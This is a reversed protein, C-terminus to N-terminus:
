YDAGITKLINQKLDTVELKLNNEFKEKVEKSTDDFISNETKGWGDATGTESFESVSLQPVCVSRITDGFNISDMM